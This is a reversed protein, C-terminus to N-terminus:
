DADGPLSHQEVPARPPTHPFAGRPHPVGDGDLEPPPAGGAFLSLGISGVVHGAWGPGFGAQTSPAYVGRAELRIAVREGLFIRDGVAGHVANDTFRYPAGPEFDLRSYGGLLYFVNHEGTALNLLLSGSGAVLNPTAGGTRPNLTAYSVDLEAGLVDGFFYGLRAGGGGGNDLGFARDYRAYSGFTGLEFQHARQATLRPAALTLLVLIAVHRM